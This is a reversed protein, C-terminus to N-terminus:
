KLAGDNLTFFMFVNSKVNEIVHGTIPHAIKNEFYAYYSNDADLIFQDHSDIYEFGATFLGVREGSLYQTLKVIDESTLDLNTLKQISLFTLHRFVEANKNSINKIVNECAQAIKPQSSWDQKVLDILQQRRM